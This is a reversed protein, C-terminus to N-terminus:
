FFWHEVACTKNTNNNKRKFTPSSYSFSYKSVKLMYKFNGKPFTGIYVGMTNYSLGSSYISTTLKIDLLLETVINWLMLM